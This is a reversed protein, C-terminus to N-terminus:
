TAPPPGRFGYTREYWRSVDIKSLKINKRSNTVNPTAFHRNYYYLVDM